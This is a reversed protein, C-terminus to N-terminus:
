ELPFGMGRTKQSYKRRDGAHLCEDSDPPTLMYGGGHHHLIQFHAPRFLKVFGAPLTTDALIRRVQDLTERCTLGQFSDMGYGLVGSSPLAGAFSPPVERAQLWGCYLDTDPVKMLHMATGPMGPDGSCSGLFATSDAGDLHEMIQELQEEVEASAKDFVWCGQM